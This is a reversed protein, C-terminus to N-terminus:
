KQATVTFIAEQDIAGDGNLRYRFELNPRDIEIRWVEGVLKKLETMAAPEKQFPKAIALCILLLCSICAPIRYKM